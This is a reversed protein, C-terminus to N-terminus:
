AKGIWVLMEGEGRNAWAFYPILTLEVDTYKEDWDAVYLPADAPWDRRLARAKLVPVELEGNWEAHFDAARPLLIDKLHEGNDAEEACFVLPGRMIAM